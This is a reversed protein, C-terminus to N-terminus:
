NYGLGAKGNIGRGGCDESHRLLVLPLGARKGWPPTRGSDWLWREIVEFGQWFVEKEM